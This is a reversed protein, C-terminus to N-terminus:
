SRLEEQPQLVVPLVEQEALIQVVAVPQFWHVLEPVSHVLHEQQHLVSNQKQLVLLLYLLLFDEQGSHLVQNCSTRRFM